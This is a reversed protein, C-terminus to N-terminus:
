MTPVWAPGQVCIAGREDQRVTPQVEFPPNSRLRADEVVQAAAGESEITGM